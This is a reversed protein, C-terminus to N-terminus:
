KAAQLVPKSFDAIFGRMGREFRSLGYKNAERMADALKWEEQQIRYCAIVTGTRDCGHRCHLFVPGPSAHIIALVAKIQDAKPRAFGNMPINTYAIGCAKATAEEDAVVDNAMRLNIITTVGLRKLNEIGAADPQAGRFLKESVKGFNIIGESAPVGRERAAGSATLLLALTIPCMLAFRMVHSRLACLRRTGRPLSFMVLPRM